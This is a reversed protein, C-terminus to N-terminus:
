AKFPRLWGVVEMRPLMKPMVPMAMAMRVVAASMTSSAPPLASPMTQTSPPSSTPPVMPAMMALRTSIVLIGSSTAKMCLMIPRAATQM